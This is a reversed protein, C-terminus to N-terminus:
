AAARWSAPAAKWAALESERWAVSNEGIEVQRPFTGKAARRYITRESLGTQAKVQPLRVYRDHLPDTM